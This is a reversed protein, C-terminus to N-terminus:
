NLIWLTNHYNININTRNESKFFKDSNSWELIANSFDKLFKYREDDSTFNLKVEQRNVDFPLCLVKNISISFVNAQYIAWNNKTFLFKNIRKDNKYINFYQLLTIKVDTDKLLEVKFFMKPGIIM